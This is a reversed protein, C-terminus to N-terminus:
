EKRKERKRYSLWQKQQNGQLNKFQLSNHILTVHIHRGLSYFFFHGTLFQSPSKSVLMNPIPVLLQIRHIIIINSSSPTKYSCPPLLSPLCTSWSTGAQRHFCTTLLKIELKSEELEAVLCQFLSTPPTLSQVLLFHTPHSPPQFHGTEDFGDFYPRSLTM